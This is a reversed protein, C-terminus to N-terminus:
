AGDTKEPEDTRTGEVGSNLSEPLGAIGLDEVTRLVNHVRSQSETSPSDLLERAAHALSILLRDHELLKQLLVTLVPDSLADALMGRLPDSDRETRSRSTRRVASSKRSKLEIGCEKLVNYLTQRSIEHQGALEDITIADPAWPDWEEYSDCIARRKEDSLRRMQMLTTSHM